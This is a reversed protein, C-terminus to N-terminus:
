IRVRRNRVDDHYIGRIVVVMVIFILWSFSMDDLTLDWDSCIVMTAFTQIMLLRTFHKNRSLATHVILIILIIHLWCTSVSWIILQYSFLIEIIWLHVACELVISFFTYVKNLLRLFWHIINAELFNFLFINFFM